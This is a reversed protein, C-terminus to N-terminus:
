PKNFGPSWSKTIKQDPAPNQNSYEPTPQLVLGCSSAFCRSSPRVRAFSDSLRCHPFVHTLMLLAPSCFLYGICASAHTVLLAADLFAPAEIAPALVDCASLHSSPFRPNPIKPTVHTSRLSPRNLPANLSCWNPAPIASAM